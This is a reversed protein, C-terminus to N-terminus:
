WLQDFLFEVTQGGDQTEEGARGDSASGTNMHGTCKQKKNEFEWSYAKHKYIYIKLGKYM